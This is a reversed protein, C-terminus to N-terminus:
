LLEEQKLLGKSLEIQKQLMVKEIQSKNFSKRFFPKKPMKSSHGYERVKVVFDIPVGKTTTYLSGNGGRRTFTTRNGSFPMYGSFYVKTNIGDDSPTKYTKTQKLDKLIKSKTSGSFTINHRINNEVVDAGAKTMGGFIADANNSVFQIEKMVENPLELQFKAM